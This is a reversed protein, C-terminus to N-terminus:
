EFRDHEFFERLKPAAEMGGFEKLWRKVDDPSLRQTKEDAEPIAEAHKGAQQKELFDLLAEHSWSRAGRHEAADKLRRDNSIVVLAAPTSEEDILTEIRDDASEKSPAFQVHLGRHEQHRAVGRPAHKADFVITVRSSDDGFSDALFDLLWRRSEELGGAKMQRQIMGLAHILNYGDILYSDAM